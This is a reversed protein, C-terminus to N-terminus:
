PRKPLRAKVQDDPSLKRYWDQKNSLNIGAKEKSQTWAAESAARDSAIRPNTRLFFKYVQQAELYSGLWAMKAAYSQPSDDKTPITLRVVQDEFPTLQKGGLDFSGQRIRGLNTDWDSYRAVFEEQNLAKPGIIFQAGPLRNIRNYLDAASGKWTLFEKVLAPANQSMMQLNNFAELTKLQEQDVTQQAATPPTNVNIQFAKQGALASVRAHYESLAQNYPKGAKVDDWFKVKDPDQASLPETATLAVTYGGKTHSQLTVRGKNESTQELYAKVGEAQQLTMGDDDPGGSAIPMGMANFRTEGKKLTFGANPEMQQKLVNGVIGPAARTLGRLETDTPQRQRTPMPVPPKMLDGPGMGSFETPPVPEQGYGLGAGIKPNGKILQRLAQAEAEQDEIQFGRKQVGPALAQKLAAGEAQTQLEKRRQAEMDAMERKQGFLREIEYSRGSAEAEPGWEWGTAM